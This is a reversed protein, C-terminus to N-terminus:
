SADDVNPIKIIEISKSVSNRYYYELRIHLPTTFASQQDVNDKPLTCMVFGEGDVLRIFKKKTSGEFVGDTLPGCYEDSLETEHVKVSGLYVKNLNEREVKEEGYPNCINRDKANIVDGTGVNKIYIKFQINKGLVEEEIKTIAVPAGQSGMTITEAHCVKKQEDFPDKDICVTPTAGTSYKYCATALLTPEYKDIKIKESKIAGKFEIIDFSGKPNFISKGEVSYDKLDIGSEEIEIDSEDNKDKIAIINPDFGSLWVTALMETNPGPYAGKNEVQLAVDLDEEEDQVRIKDPPNNSLFSLVLGQTGTRYEEDAKEGEINPNCGAIIMILILSLIIVKKNTKSSM